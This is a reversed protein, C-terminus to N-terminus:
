LRERQDYLKRSVPISHRTTATSATWAAGPSCSPRPCTPRVGAFRGIALDKMGASTSPCLWPFFIAEVYDAVHDCIWWALPRFDGSEQFRSVYWPIVISATASSYGDADRMDWIHRAAGYINDNCYYAGPDQTM